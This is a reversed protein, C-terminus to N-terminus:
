IATGVGFDQRQVKLQVQYFSNRLKLYMLQIGCRESISAVLQM